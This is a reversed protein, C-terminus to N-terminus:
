GRKGVVRASVFELRLFAQSKAGARPSYRSTTYKNKSFAPTHLRGSLESTQRSGAANVLRPPVILTASSDRAIPVPLPQHMLLNNYLM